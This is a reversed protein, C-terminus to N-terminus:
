CRKHMTLRYLYSIYTRGNKEINTSLPINEVVQKTKAITDATCATHILVAYTLGVDCRLVRCVTLPYLYDIARCLVSPACDYRAIQIVVYRVTWSVAYRVTWPLTVNLRRCCITWDVVAYRETSSMAYRASWVDPPITCNIDCRLTYLKRCLTVHLWCHLACWVSCRRDADWRLTCGADCCLTCCVAFRPIREVYYM